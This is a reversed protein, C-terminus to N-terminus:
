HNITVVPYICTPVYRSSTPLFSPLCSRSRSKIMGNIAIKMLEANLSQPLTRAGAAEGRDDGAARTFQLLAVDHTCSPTRQSQLGGSRSSLSLFLTCTPQFFVYRATPSLLHLGCCCSVFAKLQCGTIRWPQNRQVESAAELECGRVERRVCSGGVEEMMAVAVTARGPWDRRLRLSAGRGDSALLVAVLM